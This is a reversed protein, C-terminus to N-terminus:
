VELYRAYPQMGYEGSDLCDVPYSGDDVRVWEGKAKEDADWVANEYAEIWPKLHSMIKLRGQNMLISELRIRAVIGDKKYSPNVTIYIGRRQLENSLAQRFLKDASECFIDCSNFFFPVYFHYTREWEVIKDVIEKAYKDHTYGSTNKGQKHYYGDLKIAERYGETFGTITAVTADTGGIDVGISFQVFRKGKDRFEKDSIYDPTVVVDKYSYREYIRGSAATRRGLIDAQYWLSTKDYTSLVERLKADSLSMNDAITFHEYNYGTNEGRVKLEDQYDLIDSYFWHSPSMPNLDFFLQRKTSALTRDFVEQVFSQHCENVETIYVTGYSNGKIRAADNVKGGGACIVIKEGTRTQVYLADREEYKGERCRGKFIHKLGFGNSDIVNMKATALTVGAVLHLRDPHDELVAGYAMTNLINKGARKGGEAVNLWCTMCRKVYESQKITLPAYPIM